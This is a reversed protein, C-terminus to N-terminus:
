YPGLFKDGNFHILHDPESALWVETEWAIDPSFRRFTAKDLFATVFVVAATCDKLLESLILRREQSIPNASHVAEILYVWNKSASYAVVDPLKTETLNFFNLEQLRALEIHNFKSATDLVEAGNGYRPLFEEVISKQLQNHLGALFSLAKGSPLLIPTRQIDRPKSLRDSLTGHREVADAVLAEWEPKGFARVLESFQPNLAYRRTGDNQDKSPDDTVVLGSLYPLLLDNRRVDDYSGDSIKEKFEKRWFRIIERTLLARPTKLDKAVPWESPGKVDMIALLALAMKELRRPTLGQLPMGLSSLIHITQNILARLQRGKTRFTKPAEALRIYEPTM